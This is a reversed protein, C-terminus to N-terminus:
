TASVASLLRGSFAAIPDEPVLSTVRKRAVAGLLEWNERQEWAREMAEDLLEATPAKAVFGSVNDEVLEANGGVDTVIAMRACLMAEVLALPMGEFRSPLVLAHNQRWIEAVDDMHGEFRVNSLNLETALRRLSHGAAGNGYLRLEIPRARWQDRALVRFLLDQGKAKPELRAVCALRLIDERRFQM